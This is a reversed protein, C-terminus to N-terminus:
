STTCPETGLCAGPARAGDLGLHTWGARARNGGRRPDCLYGELTLRVLRRLFRQVTPHPTRQLQRLVRDQEDDSADAFSRGAIQEALSEAFALGRRMEDVFRPPRRRELAEIVYDPCGAEAAGAGDASPLIRLVAARLARSEREDLRSPRDWEAAAAATM